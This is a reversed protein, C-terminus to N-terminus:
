ANCRDDEKPAAAAILAEGAEAWREAGVALRGGAAAVDDILAQLRDVRRAQEAAGDAEYEIARRFLENEDRLRAIEDAADRVRRADHNDGGRRHLTGALLRLDNIDTM